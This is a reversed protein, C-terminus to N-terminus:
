HTTKKVHLKGMKYLEKVSKPAQRLMKKTIPRTALPHHEGPLLPAQPPIPPLIPQAIVPPPPKYDDVYPKGLLESMTVRQPGPAGLGRNRYEVVWMPVLLREDFFVFIDNAQKTTTIKPGIIGLCVFMMQCDASYGLSIGPDRATYIGVGYASGNLVRVNGQGPILLGSECIPLINVRRTGHYLLTPCHDWGHSSLTNLFRQELDTNEVAAYRVVNCQLISFQECVQKLSDTYLQELATPAFIKSKPKPKPLPAVRPQRQREAPLKTADFADLMRGWGEDELLTRGEWTPDAYWKWKCLYIWESDGRARRKLIKELVWEEDDGGEGQVEYEDTYLRSCAEPMMEDGSEDDDDHEVEVENAVRESAQRIMEAVHPNEHLHRRSKELEVLYWEHLDANDEVVEAGYEVALLCSQEEGPDIVNGDDDVLVYSEDSDSSHSM